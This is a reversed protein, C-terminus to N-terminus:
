YDNGFLYPTEMLIGNSEHLGDCLDSYIIKAPAIADRGSFLTSASPSVEDCYLHM